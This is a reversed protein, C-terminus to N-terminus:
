VLAYWLTVNAHSSVGLRVRTGSYIGDASGLVVVNGAGKVTRWRRRERGLRVQWRQVSRETAVSPRSREDERAPRRADAM